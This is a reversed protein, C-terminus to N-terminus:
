DMTLVARFRVKGSLMHEMAENAKTLPFKEIMCHVDHTNAFAIAEESDMAHGSPWGHVSLGKLVMQVTDVPVPGIATFLLLKGKNDLGGILPTIVDPKPATVVICAAGGLKQLEAGVDGAETDIYDTAGLKMAFDKKATGRSLAVTRYGMKRAYQIALHGLGGLGQVAITEGALINLQRIGNFVTVGACLLPAVEAPDMDEPIRVASETRLTAYEGYGGNRTVGNIAKNECMQFLGRTCAKCSFDHGGHRPLLLTDAESTSQISSHSCHKGHDVM